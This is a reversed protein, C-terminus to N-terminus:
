SVGKPKSKMCEFGSMCSPDCSGDEAQCDPERVTTVPVLAGFENRKMGLMKEAMNWKKENAKMEALAKDALEKAAAVDAKVKKFTTLFRGSAQQSLTVGNLEICSSTGGPRYLWPSCGDRDKATKEWGGSGIVLELPENGSRKLCIAGMGNMGADVWKRTKDKLQEPTAMNNYCPGSAKWEGWLDPEKVLSELLSAVILDDPSCTSSWGSNAFAELPSQPKFLRALLKWM